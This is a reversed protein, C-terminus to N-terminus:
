QFVIDRTRSWKGRFIGAWGEDEDFGRIYIYLRYPPGFSSNALFDDTVPYELTVVGYRETVYKKKLTDFSAYTEGADTCIRLCAEWDPHSNFSGIDHIVSITITDSSSLITDEPPDIDTITLKISEDPYSNFLDIFGDSNNCGTILM